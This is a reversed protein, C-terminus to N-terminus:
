ETTAAPERAASEAAVVCNRGSDKARYLADDADAFFQKRDGTFEAVGISVTLPERESPVDTLFSAAAVTERLKEALLIAGDLSTNMALVAFEEGGYRALLDTERVQENLIAAIRRLIEDGGAHGLRDNWRKFFDIDILLLSLSEQTRLSRKCANQLADQFYRHNHLKTLGDTISLQELVLNVASLEKNKLVLEQNAAEIAQQNEELESASSGLARSMENFTRTLLQIEESSHAEDIEVEREGESLRRAGVALARLPRVISRALRLAGLCCALVIAINLAIARTMSAVVPAFVEDYPQEVVLLWEFRGFETQSCVIRMDLVESFHISVSGHDPDDVPDPASYRADKPTGAPPNLFRGERDILLARAGEGFEDNSLIPTLERLDILAHLQGLNGRPDKIPTSAVQVNRDGLQRAEGITTAGRTPPLSSILDEPLSEDGGVELVVEGKPGSIILSEFHPFNTLVYRLYQEAEDRAREGRRDTKRIESLSDVLISSDAFVEIERTRLSFWHDLEGSIRRAIEPFRQDVRDKFFADLSQLSIGSVAVSSAMTAVFVLLNIRAALSRLPRSSFLKRM